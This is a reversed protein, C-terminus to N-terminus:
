PKLLKEFFDENFPDFEEDLKLKQRKPSSPSAFRELEASASGFFSPSHSSNGKLPETFKFEVDRHAPSSPAFFSLPPSYSGPHSDNYSHPASSSASSSSGMENAFRVPQVPPVTKLCKRGTKDFCM